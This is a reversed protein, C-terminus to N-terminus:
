VGTPLERGLLDTHGPLLHTTHHPIKASLAARFAQETKEVAAPDFELERCVMAWDREVCLCHIM